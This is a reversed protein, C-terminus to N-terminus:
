QGLLAEQALFSDQHEKLMDFATKFVGMDPERKEARMSEPLFDQIEARDKDSPININRLLTCLIAHQLWRASEGFPERQELLRWEIFERNSLAALM